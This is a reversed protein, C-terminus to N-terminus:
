HKIELSESYSCRPIVLNLDIWYRQETLNRNELFGKIKIKMEKEDEFIKSVKKWESNLKYSVTLEYIM